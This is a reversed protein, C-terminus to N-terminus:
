SSKATIHLLSHHTKHCHQCTNKSKCQSSFHRNSLCNICHKNKNIFELRDTPSLQQFTECRYINHDVKNCYTCTKTINTNVYFVQKTKDTRIFTQPKTLKAPTHQTSVTKLIDTINISADDLHIAETQLFKILECVTPISHTSDRSEEFRQRTYFDLKRILIAFLTLEKSIDYNLAKLAQANELYTDLFNRISKLTKNTMPPLDIIKNIHLSILKRLNQYRELLINWAVLYNAPTIPLGKILNLPESRLSSLLYTFKQVNSLHPAQNISIDFMHYFNSWNSLDGDFTPLELKPLKIVTDSSKNIESHQTNASTNLESDFNTNLSPVLIELQTKISMALEDVRDQMILVEDLNQQSTSDNSALKDVLSEFESLCKSIAIYYQSCKKRNTDSMSDATETSITNVHESIKKLKGELLTTQRQFTAYKM